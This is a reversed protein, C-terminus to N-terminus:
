TSLLRGSYGRFTLVSKRTRGYGSTQWVLFLRLLQTIFPQPFQVPGDRQMKMEGHCSERGVYQLAKMTEELRERAM